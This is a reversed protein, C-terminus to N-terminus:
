AGFSVIMVFIRFLWALLKFVWPLLNIVILSIVAVNILMWVQRGRKPFISTMALLLMKGGDAPIFPLLNFIAVGINIVFLWMMLLNVWSLIALLRPKGEAMGAPTLEQKLGAFGLYGISSNEPHEAAVLEYTKEATKLTVTDGPKIGETANIFQLATTTNKGNLELLTFPVTINEQHAPYGEVVSNVTIGAPAFSEIFLPATIFNFALFFLAGFAINAFPGAAYIGIQKMPKKEKMATDDPEVFASIIPGLFAFGSSKIPVNYFRALIGHSFEHVTAGIFLAIIWHWFSLTPIGPITIGPLLPILPTVAQPVVLFRLTEKVLFVFGFLMGLFGVIVGTASIFRLLKPNLKSLREMSQLGIKTKYLVIVGQIVFKKKYKLFLLFLVSYFILLTILDINM